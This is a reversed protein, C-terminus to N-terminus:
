MVAHLLCQKVILSLDGAAAMKNKNKNKNESEKATNCGSQEDNILTNGNAVLTFDGVCRPGIAIM